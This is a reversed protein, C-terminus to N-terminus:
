RTRIAPVSLNLLCGWTPPRRREILAGAARSGEFPRFGWWGLRFDPKAVRHIAGRARPAPLGERPQESSLTRRDLLTIVSTRRIDGCGAPGRLSSSLRQTSRDVDLLGRLQTPTPVCRRVRCRRRLISLDLAARSRSLAAGGRPPTSRIGPAGLWAATPTRRPHCCPPRTSALCSPHCFRHLAAPDRARQDLGPSFGVRRLRAPVRDFGFCTCALRSEANAGHTEM